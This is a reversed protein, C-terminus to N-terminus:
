YDALSACDEERGTMTSFRALRDRVFDDSIRRNACYERLQMAYALMQLDHVTSAAAQFRYRSTDRFDRPPDDAAPPTPEEAAAGPVAETQGFVPAVFVLAAVVWVWAPILLAHRM